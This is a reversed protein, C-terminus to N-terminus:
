QSAKNKKGFVHRLIYADAEGRSILLKRGPKSSKNNISKMLINLLKTQEEKSLVKVVEYVVNANM